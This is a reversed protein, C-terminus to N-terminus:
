AQADTEPPEPPILPEWGPPGGIWAGAEDIAPEDEPDEWTSYVLEGLVREEAMLRAMRWRGSREMFGEGPSTPGALTETVELVQALIREGMDTFYTEKDEIASLAEPRHRAMYDMARMGYANM